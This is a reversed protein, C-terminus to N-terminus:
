NMTGTRKESEAKIASLNTRCMTIDMMTDFPFAGSKVMRMTLSNDREINMGISHFLLTKTGGQIPLIQYDSTSGEYLGDISLFSLHYPSEMTYIGHMEMGGFNFILISVRTLEEWLWVQNGERKEIRVSCDKFEEFKDFDTIVEWVVDAPANIFIYNLGNLTKGEPTERILGCSYRDLKHLTEIDLAHYNLPDPERPPTYGVLNEARIKYGRLIYNAASASVPWEIIPLVALVARISIGMSKIHPYHRIFILTNQDDDVPVLYWDIQRDKLGGEITESHIHYPPYETLIDLIEYKYEFKLVSNVARHWNKVENGKRYITKSEKLTGPMYETYREYDTVVEWVLDLPAHIKMAAIADWEGEEPRPMYWQLNGSDMLTSLTDIDMDGPIPQPYTDPRTWIWIKKTEELPDEKSGTMLVAVALLILVFAKHVYKETM